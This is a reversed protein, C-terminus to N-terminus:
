LGGLECGRQELLPKMERYAAMNLHLPISPHLHHIIHFEMGMAAVNGFRYRFARTDKYRGTQQGPHHPAWSLLLSIYTVGIHRPLWWIFFAELALGSWALATLTGWFFVTLAVAELKARTAAKGGIRELTEGYRDRARGCLRGSVSTRIADWWGKATVGYDPDREPNNTHAHHELHTLRAVRYPLVMPITSIHGVLENLWRLPTNPKAINNHQAEHSPLYCITISLTSLVFGAWLPLGAFMVLPWLSLWFAFNGLAWFVIIWPTKGMYKRAIAYEQRRLEADQEHTLPTM